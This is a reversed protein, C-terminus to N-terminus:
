AADGRLHAALERLDIPDADRDRPNSIRPDDSCSSIDAFKMRMPTAIAEGFAIAERDRQISTRRRDEHDIRFLTATGLGPAGLLDSGNAAADRLIATRSKPGDGRRAACLDVASVIESISKRKSPLPVTVLPPPEPVVPKPKEVPKKPPGVPAAARFRSRFVAETVEDSDMGQLAAVVAGQGRGTAERITDLIENGHDADM